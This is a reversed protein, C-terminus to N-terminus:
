RRRARLRMRLHASPAPAARPATHPSLASPQGQARSGGWSPPSCRSSGGRRGRRGRSSSGRSGGAARRGGETDGLAARAAGRGGGHAIPNPAAAPDGFGRGGRGREGAGTGTAGNKRPDQIHIGRRLPPEILPETGVSGVALLVGIHWLRPLAARLLVSGVDRHEWAGVWMGVVGFGWM